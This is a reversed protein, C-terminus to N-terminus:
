KAPSEAPPDALLHIHLKTFVTAILSNNLDAFRGGPGTALFENLARIAGLVALVTVPDM